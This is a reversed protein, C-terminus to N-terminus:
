LTRILEVIARAAQALATLAGLLALAMRKGQGDHASPEM